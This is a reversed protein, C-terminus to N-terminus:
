KAFATDIKALLRNEIGPHLDLGIIYDALIDLLGISDIVTVVVENPESDEIGDNVVLEIIYEGVPLEITPAVGTADYIEGDIMWSWYYSLEDGDIDNSDSGNLKVEALRDICVYVAQDDGADAVPPHNPVVEIKWLDNLLGLGGAGDYGNGGFLWLDGASDTWSISGFRSGPINAADATGCIGYVGSSNITDSGDMWTSLVEVGAALSGLDGSDGSINVFDITFENAGGADFTDASAINAVSLIVVVVLISRKM